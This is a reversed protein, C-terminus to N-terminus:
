QNFKYVAWSGNTAQVKLIRTNNTVDLTTATRYGTVDVKDGNGYAFVCLYNIRNVRKLDEFYPQVYLWFDIPRFNKDGSHFKLSEVNFIVEEKATGFDPFLEEDMKEGLRIHEAM